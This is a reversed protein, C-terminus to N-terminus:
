NMKWASLDGSAWLGGTEIEVQPVDDWQQSQEQGDLVEMIFDAARRASHGDRHAYISGAIRDRAEAFPDDDITAAPDFRMLDNPDLIMHGGYCWDWFRGGHYTNRRYTPVNLMAVPRGLSMFEPILSTNDAVLLDARDFVDAEDPVYEVELKEWRKAAIEPQRPHGHGIVELGLSRWREIAKGMFPEWTPWTDRTEPAVMCNHVVFGNVMYWHPVTTFDYGHGAYPRRGVKVVEHTTVEGPLLSIREGVVEADPFGGDVPSELVLTNLQSSEGHVFRSGIRNGRKILKGIPRVGDFEVGTWSTGEFGPHEILKNFAAAVCGNKLLGDAGVVHIEENIREDDFHPSTSPMCAPAVRVSKLLSGAANEVRTPPLYADPVDWGPHREGPSCHVLDDGAKVEGALVWGRTTLVPHNPSVSFAVGALTELDILEGEYWRVSAGVPTPGSVVEGEPVLDWHTTIAVTPPGTLKREGSLWPDLKPCGVAISPVTPYGMQWREVVARGPAIFGLVLKHGLGGSYANRAWTSGTQYTQGAGHEVYFKYGRVRDADDRSAVLATGRSASPETVLGPSGLAEWIPRLHAEFHPFSRVLDIRVSM